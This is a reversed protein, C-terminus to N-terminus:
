CFIYFSVLILALTFRDLLNNRRRGGLICNRIVCSFYFYVFLYIIFITDALDSETNMEINPIKDDDIIAQLKVHVLLLLARSSVFDFQSCPSVLHKSLPVDFTKSIALSKILM